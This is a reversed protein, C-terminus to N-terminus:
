WLDPWTDPCAWPEAEVSEPDDEDVWPPSYVCQVWETSAFELVYSSGLGRYDFDPPELWSALYVAGFGIRPRPVSPLLGADVLEDLAEPYVEEREFYRELADIVRQAVVHRSHAHDGTALATGTTVTVALGLGALGMGAALQRRREPALSLRMAALPAAYLVVLLWPWPSAIGLSRVLWAAMLLLGALASVRADVVRESLALGLALHVGALVFGGVDLAFIALAPWASLNFRAGEDFGTAHRMVVVAVIGFGAALALQLARWRPSRTQLITDAHFPLTAALATAGGTAALVLTGQDGFFKWPFRAHIGYFAFLATCTVGAFALSRAVPSRTGWVTAAFAIAPVIALALIEGGPPTARAISGIWSAGQLAGTASWWAGSGVPGLGRYVFAAWGLSALAGAWAVARRHVPTLGAPPTRSM